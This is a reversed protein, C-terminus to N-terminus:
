RAADSQSGASSSVLDSSSRGAWTIRRMSSVTSTRRVSGIGFDLRRDGVSFTHQIAAFITVM